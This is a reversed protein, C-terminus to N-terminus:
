NKNLVAIRNEGLASVALPERNFSQKFRLQRKPHLLTDYIQVTTSNLVALVSPKM